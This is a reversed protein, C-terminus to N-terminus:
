HYFLDSEGHHRSDEYLTKMQAETKHHFFVHILALHDYNHYSAHSSVTTLKIM